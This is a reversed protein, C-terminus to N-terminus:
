LLAAGGGTETRVEGGGGLKADGLGVRGSYDRSQRMRTRQTRKGEGLMAAEPSRAASRPWPSPESVGRRAHDVSKRFDPFQQCRNRESNLAAAPQRRLWTLNSGRSTQPPPSPCRGRGRVSKEGKRRSIPIPLLPPSQSSSSFSACFPTRTTRPRKTSTFCRAWTFAHLFSPPPQQASSHM